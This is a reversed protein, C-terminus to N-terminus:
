GDAVGRVRARRLDRAVLDRVRSVAGIAVGLALVADSSMDGTAQRLSLVDDLVVGLRGHAWELREIVGM